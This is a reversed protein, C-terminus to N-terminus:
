DRKFAIGTWTLRCQGDAPTAPAMQIPEGLAPRAAEPFGNVFLPVGELTAPIGSVVWGACGRDTAAAAENLIAERVTAAHQWLAIHSRTAPIWFATLCVLPVIALTDPAAVTGASSALLLAWGTVALYVYRSGLLDADVFFYALVPAVSGLVFLVAAVGRAASRDRWGTRSAATALLLVVVAASLIGLSPHRLTEEVRFPVILTAFPRVLLEKIAYRSAAPSYSSPLPLLSFRVLLFVVTLVGCWAAMTWAPKRIEPILGLAALLVPAAIATEKATLGVLFALTVAALRLATSGIDIAAVLVGLVSTAMLVDQLGSPWSVAEVAAPFTLFLAGACISLPRRVGAACALRYVLFANIGHLVVNFAHLIFAPDGPLALGARWLVFIAPRFLERWVTFRGARAAEVLVFDDAFLGAFLIPWYLLLAGGACVALLMSDVRWSTSSPREDLASARGSLLVQVIAAAIFILSAAEIHHRRTGAAQLYYLVARLLLYAASAWCVSAAIRQAAARAAAAV